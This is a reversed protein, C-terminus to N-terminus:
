CRWMPFAQSCLSRSAPNFAGVLPVCALFPDYTISGYAAAAALFLVQLRASSRLVLPHVPDVTFCLVVGPCLARSGQVGGRWFHLSGQGVAVVYVQDRPRSGAPALPPM